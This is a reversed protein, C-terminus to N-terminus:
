RGRQQDHFLWECMKLLGYTAVFFLALIGLYLLDM